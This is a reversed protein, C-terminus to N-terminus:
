EVPSKSLAKAILGAPTGRERWRVYAPRGELYDKWILWFERVSDRCADRFPYDPIGWLLSPTGPIDYIDGSNLAWSIPVPTFNQTWSIGGGTPTSGVVSVPLNEPLLNDQTM